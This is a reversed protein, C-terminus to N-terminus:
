TLIQQLEQERRLVGLVARVGHKPIVCFHCIRNNVVVTNEEVVCPLLRTSCTRKCKRLEYKLYTILTQKRPGIPRHSMRGTLSGMVMLVINFQSPSPTPRTFLDKSM